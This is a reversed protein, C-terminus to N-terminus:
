LVHVDRPATRNHGKPHKVRALSACYCFLQTGVSRVTDPLSVDRLKPCDYFAKNGIATVGDPVTVSRLTPHSYFAESGISKVPLNAIRSPVTVSTLSGTYSLIEITDDPLRRWEWGIYGHEVAWRYAYCNEEVEIDTLGTGEFADDAIYTLSSPLTVSTVGSEAFAKSEIREAGEPIVM